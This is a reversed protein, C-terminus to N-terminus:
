ASFQQQVKKIVNERKKDEWTKIIQDRSLGADIVVDYGVHKLTNVFRVSHKHCCQNIELEYNKVKPEVGTVNKVMTFLYWYDSISLSCDICNNPASM